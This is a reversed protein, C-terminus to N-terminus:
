GGMFWNFLIVLPTTHMYTCQLLDAVTTLTEVRTEILNEMMANCWDCSQLNIM